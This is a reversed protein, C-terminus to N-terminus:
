GAFDTHVIYKQEYDELSLIFDLIVNNKFAAHVKFDGKQTVLLVCFVM